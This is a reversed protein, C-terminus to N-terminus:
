PKRMEPLRIKKHYVCRYKLPTTNPVVELVKRGTREEFIAVWEVIQESRLYLRPESVARMIHQAVGGATLARDPMGRYANAVHQGITDQIDRYLAGFGPGIAKDVLCM